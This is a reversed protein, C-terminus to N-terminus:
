LLGAGRAILYALGVLIAAIAIVGVVLGANQARRVEEPTLKSSASAHLDIAEIDARKAEYAMVTQDATDRMHRKADKITDNILDKEFKM